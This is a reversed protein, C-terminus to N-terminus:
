FFSMANLLSYALFTFLPISLLGYVPWFSVVFSIYGFLFTATLVTVTKPFHERWQDYPLPSHLIYKEVAFRSLVFIFVFLNFYAAYMAYYNVAHHDHGMIILPVKTHSLLLAGAIIMCIRFIISPTDRRVDRPVDAFRVNRNRGESILPSSEPTFAEPAKASSSAKVQKKVM